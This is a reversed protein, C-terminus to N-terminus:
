VLCIWLIIFYLYIGIKISSIDPDNLLGSTSRALAPPAPARRRSKVSQSRQKVDGPPSPALRKPQEPLEAYINEDVIKKGQKASDNEQKQQSQQSSNSKTTKSKAGQEQQQKLPQENSQKEGFETGVSKDDVM